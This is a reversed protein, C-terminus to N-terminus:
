SGFGISDRHRYKRSEVAPGYVVPRRMTRRPPLRQWIALWLCPRPMTIGAMGITTIDVMIATGTLVPRSPSRAAGLHLHRHALGL